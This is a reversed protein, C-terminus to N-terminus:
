CTSAQIQMKGGYRKVEVIYRVTTADGENMITPPSSEPRKSGLYWDVAGEAMEMINGAVQEYDDDDESEFKCIGKHDADMPIM